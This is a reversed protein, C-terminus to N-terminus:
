QATPADVAIHIIAPHDEFPAERCVGNEVRSLGDFHGDDKNKKELIYKKM